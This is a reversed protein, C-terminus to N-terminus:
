HKVLFISELFYEHGNHKCSSLKAVTLSIRPQLWLYSNAETNKYKIPVPVAELQHLALPKQTYPEIFDPFQLVLNFDRDCSFSIIKMDNYYYLDPFLLTFDPNTKQIAIKIQDLM